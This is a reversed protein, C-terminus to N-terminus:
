IFWFICCFYVFIYLICRTRDAPEQQACGNRVLPNVRKRDLFVGLFCRIRDAPELHVCGDRVPLPPRAIFAQQLISFLNFVYIWTIRIRILNLIGVNAATVCHRLNSLIALLNYNQPSIVFWPHPHTGLSTQGFSFSKLNEKLVFCSLKEWPADKWCDWFM